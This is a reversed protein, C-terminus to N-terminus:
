SVKSSNSDRRAYEASSAAPNTLMLIFLELNPDFIGRLKSRPDEIIIRYFSNFIFIIFVFSFPIM